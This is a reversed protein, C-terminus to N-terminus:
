PLLQEKYGYLLKDATLIELTKPRCWHWFELMLISDLLLGGVELVTFITGKLIHGIYAFVVSYGVEHKNPHNNTQNNKHRNISRGILHIRCCVHTMVLGLANCRRLGISRDSNWSSLNKGSACLVWGLCDSQRMAQTNAAPYSAMERIMELDVSLCQLWFGVTWKM